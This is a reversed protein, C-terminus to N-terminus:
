GGTKERILVIVTGEPPTFLVRPSEGTQVQVFEIPVRREPAPNEENPLMDPTVRVRFWWLDKTAELLDLDKKRGFFRGDYQSQEVNLQPPASSSFTVEFRDDAEIVIRNRVFVQGVAHFTVEARVEPLEVGGRYRGSDPDLRWDSFTVDFTHPLPVIGEREDKFIASVDIADPLIETGIRDGPGRVALYEQDLVVAVDFGEPLGRVKPTLVRLQRDEVRYIEILPEGVSEVLRRRFPFDFLSRDRIIDRRSTEGPQLDEVRVFISPPSGIETLADEIEARPGRLRLEVTSLPFALFRDPSQLVPRVQVRLPEDMTITIARRVVAWVLVALVLALVRLGWESSAWRSLRQAAPASRAPASQPPRAVDSV